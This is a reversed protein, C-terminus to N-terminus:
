HALESFAAVIEAVGATDLNEPDLRLLGDEAEYKASGGFSFGGKPAALMAMGGAMPEPAATKGLLLPVDDSGSTVNVSPPADNTSM